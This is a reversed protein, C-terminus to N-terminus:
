DAAPRFRSALDLVQARSVPLDGSAPRRAPLAMLFTRAEGDGLREPVGDSGRIVALDDALLSWSRAVLAMAAAALVLETSVDGADAITGLSIPVGHRQLLAARALQGLLLSRRATAPLPRGVLMAFTLEPHSELTDGHSSRLEEASQAAPLLRALPGTAAVGHRRERRQNWAELQARTPVPFVTSAL